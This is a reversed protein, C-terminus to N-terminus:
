EASLPILRTETEINLIRIMLKDDDDQGDNYYIQEGPM